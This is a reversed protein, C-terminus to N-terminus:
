LQELASREATTGTKALVKGDTIKEYAEFYRLGFQYLSAANFHLNDPNSTLGEASVFGCKEDDQAISQLEENVKLYEHEGKENCEYYDMLFDGLGGILVPVDPLNLDEKMKSIMIEFRSKYTLYGKNRIDGEGQHWLIGVIESSRQGLRACNVANDYLVTGPMWQELSTGGDACCILGVDTDYKKAYSEAFSEALCVGSFSRDPNIPRFMRNWLGNRMIKIHTTDIEKAENLFGRGAMNSQGILLFSHM